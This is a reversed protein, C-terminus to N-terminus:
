VQKKNEGNGMDIGTKRVLVFSFLSLLKKDGFDVLLMSCTAVTTDDESVLALSDFNSFESFNQKFYLKRYFSRRM